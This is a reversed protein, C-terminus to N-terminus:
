NGADWSSCTVAYSGRDLGVSVKTSANKLDNVAYQLNAKDTDKLSLSSNNGFDLGGCIVMGSIDLHQGSSFQGTCYIIGHFSNTGNRVSVNGNCVIVNFDSDSYDKKNITMDSNYKFYKINPNQSNSDPIKTLDLAEISYTSGDIYSTDGTVSIDQKGTINVQSAQTLNGEVTFNNGVKLNKALLLVDGKVDFKNDVCNTNSSNDVVTLLNKSYFNLNPYKSILENDRIKYYAAIKRTDKGLHGTATIKITRGSSDRGLDPIASDITYYIIEGSDNSAADSGSSGSYDGVDNLLNYNVNYNFDSKAAFYVSIVNNYIDTKIDSPISGSNNIAALRSNIGSQIQNFIINKSRELGAESSYYAGNSRNSANSIGIGGSTAQLIALGLIMLMMFLILTFILASGRQNRM